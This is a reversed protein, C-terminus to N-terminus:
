IASISIYPHQLSHQLFLFNYITNNVNHIRATVTGCNKDNAITKVGLTIVDNLIYSNESMFLVIEDDVILDNIIKNSNVSFNDVSTEFVEVGDINLEVDNHDTYSVIIRYNTYTTKAKLNDICDKIKVVDKGEIIIAVKPNQNIKTEITNILIDPTISAPLKDKFKEIFVKRNEDWEQNTEGLGRHIVRIDTTVGVKVGNAFNGFSFDIDYFHFGPITTDFEYKIRQRNVAIFLGDVNVTPIIQKPFAGSYKNEWTKQGNTHKVIGVMKNKDEWWKGETGLDTTGALGIIGYDSTDFLKKLKRAWSDGTFSIDDHLFVITDYKAEKLGKQYVQTLSMIGPNEYFIFEANNIGCSKLVHSKFKEDPKKTSCIISIM